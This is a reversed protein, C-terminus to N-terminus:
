TFPQLVSCCVAVCQLVSCHSAQTCTHQLHTASHRPTNHQLTDYHTATHQLADRGDECEHTVYIHIATHQLTNCHTATHPQTNSHTNHLANCYSSHTLHELIYTMIQARLVSCWVLLCLLVSCCVAVCQLVSRCVAVCQSVSCCVAVCQLVSCCVAVCQLM